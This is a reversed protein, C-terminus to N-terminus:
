MISFVSSDFLFINSNFKWLKALFTKLNDNLENMWTFLILDNWFLINKFGGIATSDCYYKDFYFIEYDKIGM